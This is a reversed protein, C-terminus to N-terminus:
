YFENVVLYGRFFAKLGVFFIKNKDLYTKTQFHAMSSGLDDLSHVLIWDVFTSANFEQRVLSAAFRWSM